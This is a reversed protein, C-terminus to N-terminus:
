KQQRFDDHCGKCAGGTKRFAAMAPGQGEAAALSLETAMEVLVQSKEAFDEPASWIKPLAETALDFERTDAAFVDPIMAALQGIRGANKQVLEGDFPIQGRAMGVIPGFYSGVVKFLGQRTDIKAQAQESPSPGDAASLPTASGLLLSAALVVVSYRGLKTLSKIKASPKHM